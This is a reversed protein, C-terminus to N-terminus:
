PSEGQGNYREYVTYNGPITRQEHSTRNKKYRQVALGDVSSGSAGAEAEASGAEALAAAGTVAADVADATESSWAGGGECGHTVTARRAGLGQM